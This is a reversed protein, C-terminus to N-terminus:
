LEESLENIFAMCVNALEVKDAATRMISPAVKVRMGLAEINAKQERDSVDIVFGDILERYHKAVQKCTTPLNLEQMIKATPGKIARDGVIPSVAVVPFDRNQLLSRMAEVALIPDISLFPNSPCIVAGSVSHTDIASSLSASAAHAYEFAIVKPECKFRVFYEQFSLPGQETEVFTRLPMDTVPVINHEVGLREYIHKTVETLTAGTALHTTRLLHVALDRDGLQFWTDTGLTALEAMCRWSDNARGWGNEENVTGALTYTLTDIDPSIKLGLHEFDDGVNVVFVVENPKLIRALGLSLKAGGVGGTLALVTM